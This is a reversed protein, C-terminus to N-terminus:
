IKSYSIQPEIPVVRIGILHLCRSEIENENKKYMPSRLECIPFNLDWALPAQGSDWLMRHGRGTERRVDCALLM